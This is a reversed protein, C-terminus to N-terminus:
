GGDKKGAAISTRRLRIPPGGSKRREEMRVGATKFRWMLDWVWFVRITLLTWLYIHMYKYVRHERRAGNSILRGSPGDPYASGAERPIQLRPRVMGTLKVLPAFAGRVFSALRSM